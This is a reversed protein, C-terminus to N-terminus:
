VDNKGIISLFSEFIVLLFVIKLEYLIKVFIFIEKKLKHKSSKEIMALFTLGILFLTTQKTAGKTKTNRQASM